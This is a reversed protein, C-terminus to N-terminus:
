QRGGPDRAYAGRILDEIRVLSDEIKGLRQRVAADGVIDAANRERLQDVKLGMNQSYTTLLRLSGGIDDVRSTFRGAWFAGGVITGTIAILVGLRWTIRVGGNWDTMM